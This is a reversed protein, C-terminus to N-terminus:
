IEKELIKELSKDIDDLKIKTKDKKPSTIKNDSEKKVKSTKKIDKKKKQFMTKRYTEKEKFEQSSLKNKIITFRLIKQLHKLDERINILDQPSAEFFIRAFYSTLQKEIPYALELSRPEEAKVVTAKKTALDKQIKQWLKDAEQKELKGSLHFSLEYFNM